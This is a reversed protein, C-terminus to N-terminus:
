LLRAGLSQCLKGAEDRPLICCATALADSLASTPSVVCAAVEKTLGLGTAPNIIHAYRVGEIEVTQQLSGSTSVAANSLTLAASDKQKDFTRVGIKWGGEGLPSDGVRVDGGATVSARSVGHNKLVDLMADAAQGKAIGGLDLRMGPVSFTATSKEQDLILQKWGCAAKADALTEPNPLAKRRRAERWLKTLPGLTPDFAGDTKEALERAQRILRFLMPSVPVATGAPHKSLSLLESGAIYDSACANIAEAGAFAAAAAKEVLATDPHHATISFLTGMLPRKITIGAKGGAAFSTTRSSGLIATLLVLSRRRNM